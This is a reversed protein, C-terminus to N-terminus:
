GKRELEIVAGTTIVSKAKLKNRLSQMKKKNKTRGDGRHLQPQKQKQPSKHEQQLTIQHLSSQPINGVRPVNEQPNPEM